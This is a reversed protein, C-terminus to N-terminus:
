AEARQEARRRATYLRRELDDPDVDPRAILGHWIAPMTAQARAGLSEADVPVKRWEILHLGGAALSESVVDRAREDWEFLAAVAVNGGLLRYPVQILLGAGDGSKGDADLGGRHSLRALAQVGMAVAAHGLEPTAVFGM